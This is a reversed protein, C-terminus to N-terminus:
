NLPQPRTAIPADPDAAPREAATPPPGAPEAQIPPATVVV